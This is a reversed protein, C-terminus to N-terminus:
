DKDLLEYRNVKEEMCCHRLTEKKESNNVNMGLIGTEDKRLMRKWDPTM